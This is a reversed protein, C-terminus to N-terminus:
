FYVHYLTCLNCPLACFICVETILADAPSLGQYLRDGRGTNFICEALSVSTSSLHLQTQHTQRTASRVLEGHVTSLVLRCVRGVFFCVDVEVKLLKGM